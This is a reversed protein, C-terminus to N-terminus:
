ANKSRDGRCTIGIVQCPCVISFDPIRTELFARVEAERKSPNECRATALSKFQDCFVERRNSCERDQKSCKAPDGACQRRRSSTNEPLSIKLSGLSDGRLRIAQDEHMKPLGVAAGAFLELLVNE